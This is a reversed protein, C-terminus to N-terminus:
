STNTSLSQAIAWRRNSLRATTGPVTSSLSKGKQPFTIGGEAPFHKEYRRFWNKSEKRTPIGLEVVNFHKPMMYETFRKISGGKGAADRGEFVLAVRKNNKIVWHQLKLLEAQLRKKEKQYSCFDIDNYFYFFKSRVFDNSKM